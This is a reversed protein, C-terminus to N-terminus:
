QDKLEGTISMEEFLYQAYAHLASSMVREVTYDGLNKAADTYIDYIFQSVTVTVKIEM